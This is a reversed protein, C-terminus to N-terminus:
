KSFVEVVAARWDHGGDMDAEGFIFVGDANDRVFELQSQWREKPVAQKKSHFTPMLFPYCPKLWRKAEAINAAAYVEWNEYSHEPYFDYLSPASFDFLHGFQEMNRANAEKWKDLREANGTLPTWYDRTPVMSYWGCRKGPLYKRVIQMAPLVNYRYVERSDCEGKIDFAEVNVVLVEATKGIRSFRQEVIDLSIKALDYKGGPRAFWFHNTLLTYPTAGADILQTDRSFVREVQAYSTSDSLLLFAILVLWRM